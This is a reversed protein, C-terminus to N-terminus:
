PSGEQATSPWALGALSASLAERGRCLRSRVTGVPASIVEAVEDYSLGELSVLLLVVRQEAPLQDLAEQIPFPASRRGAIGDVGRPARHDPDGIPENGRCQRWSVFVDHEIRFLWARPRPPPQRAEAKALARELTEQVLADAHRTQGLLARAFRRLHPIEQEILSPLQNM